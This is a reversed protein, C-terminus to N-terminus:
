IASPFHCVSTAFVILSHDYYPSNKWGVETGVAGLLAIPCVTFLLLCVALLM